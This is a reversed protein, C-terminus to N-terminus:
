LKAIAAQCVASAEEPRMVTTDLDHLLGDKLGYVWGHIALRQGRSWAEQVVAVRVRRADKQSEM